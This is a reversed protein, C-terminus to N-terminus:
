EDSKEKPKHEGCAMCVNCFMHVTKRGCLPCVTSEGGAQEEPTCNREAILKAYLDPDGGSDRWCKECSAMNGRGIRLGSVSTKM